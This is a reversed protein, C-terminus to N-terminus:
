GNFCFGFRLVWCGASCDVGVAAAATVLSLLLYFSKNRVFAFEWRSSSRQNWLCIFVLKVSLWRCIHRASSGSKMTVGVKISIRRRYFIDGSNHGNTCQGTQNQTSAVHNLEWLQNLLNTVYEWCGLWLMIKFAKEKTSHLESDFFLLKNFITVISGPWNM